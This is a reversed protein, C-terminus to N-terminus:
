AHIFRTRVAATIALGTRLDPPPGVPQFWDLSPEEISPVVDPVPPRAHEDAPDDDEASSSVLLTRAHSMYVKSAAPIRGHSRALRKAEDWTEKSVLAEISSRLTDLRAANVPRLTGVQPHHVMKRALSLSLAFEAPNLAPVLTPDALHRRQQDQYSATLETWAGCRVLCEHYASWANEQLEIGDAM